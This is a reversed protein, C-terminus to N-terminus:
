CLNEEGHEILIERLNEIADKKTLGFGTFTYDYDFTVNALYCGLMTREIYCQKIINDIIM